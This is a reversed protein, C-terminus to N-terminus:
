TFWATYFPAGLASAVMIESLVSKGRFHDAKLSIIFFFFLNELLQWARGM